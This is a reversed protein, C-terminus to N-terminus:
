FDIKDDILVAIDVQKRIGHSNEGDNWELVMRSTNRTSLLYISKTEHDIRGTQPKQNSFQISLNKNSLTHQNWDSFQKNQTNSKKRLPVKYKM